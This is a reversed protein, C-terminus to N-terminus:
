ETVFRCGVPNFYLRVAQGPEVAITSPVRLMLKEAGAQVAVERYEGLFLVTAVTGNVQNPGDPGHPLGDIFPWPV